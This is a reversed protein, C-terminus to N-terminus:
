TNKEVYRVSTVIRSENSETTTHQNQNKPLFHPMKSDIGLESLFDLCDRFGRDM